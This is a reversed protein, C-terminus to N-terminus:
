SGRLHSLVQRLRNLAKMNAPQGGSGTEGKAEDLERRAEQALDGLDGWVEDNYNSLVDSWQELWQNAAEAEDRTGFHQELGDRDGRVLFDPQFNLLNDWNSGFAQGNEGGEFLARRLSALQEPGLPAEPEVDLDLDFDASSLLQSVDAGDDLEQASVAGLASTTAPGSIGGLGPALTQRQEWIEPTLQSTATGSEGLFGGYQGEGTGSQDRRQTFASASAATSGGHSTRAHSTEGRSLSTSSPLSSSGGATGQKQSSSGLAGDSSLDPRGSLMSQSLATASSQIRSSLSAPGDHGRQTSNAGQSSTDEMSKDRQKGKSERASTPNDQESMTDITVLLFSQALLVFPRCLRVNTLFDNFQWRARGESHYSFSFRPPFVTHCTLYYPVTGQLAAPKLHGPEERGYLPTRLLIPRVEVLGTKYLEGFNSM